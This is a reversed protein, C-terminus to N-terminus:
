TSAHTGPEGSPEFVGFYTLLCAMDHHAAVIQMVEGQLNTVRELLQSFYSARERRMIDRHVHGEVVM